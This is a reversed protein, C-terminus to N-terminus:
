KQQYNKRVRALQEIVDVSWPGGCITKASSVDIVDANLGSQLLAPHETVVQGRSWTGASYPSSILVDPELKLVAELALTGYLQIGRDIAVNHWGALELSQGRLTGAGVTYGRPDYIAARPRMLPATPLNALRTNMDEILTQARAGQHLWGGVETLTNMVDDISSAINVSKVEVGARQLLQLTYKSTFAGALVLDPQLAIAEEAIGKNTPYQLAKEWHVSASENHSLFTLSLIQEPDALALLMQDTCVNISVVRPKSAGSARSATVFTAAFLICLAIILRWM